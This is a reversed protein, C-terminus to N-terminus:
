KTLLIGGVLGLGILFFPNHLLSSNEKQLSEIEKTQTNLMAQAQSIEADRDAIQQKQAQIAREGAALAEQV